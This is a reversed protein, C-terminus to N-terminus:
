ITYESNQLAINALRINIFTNAYKYIYIYIIHLTMVIQHHKMICWDSYKKAM